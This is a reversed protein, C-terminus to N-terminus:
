NSRFAIANLTPIKIEQGEKIETFPDQVKNFDTLVWYYSPSNYYFLAINDWTDGTKAKYIIYTVDDSLHSTIGQIYKNDLTNFYYPFSVYRSLYTYNKYQKNKLVEM